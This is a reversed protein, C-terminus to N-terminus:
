ESTAYSQEQQINIKVNAPAIITVTAIVDPPVPSTGTAWQSRLQDPTGTYSSIDIGTPDCGDITHPEPGSSGDTYQWLWPQDWSAQVVPNSGYQALWLRRAGFFEDKSDGLWEKVLNGSYIVCQGPRGLVTEVKTIFQVAQDKSITNDGYDELDACFLMSSDLQANDVFNQAQKNPDSADCFHYAGWLLGAKLAATRQSFYTGDQNGTGQTAKYIVGVVGANKVANYNKAPDYHSLDIVLPNTKV